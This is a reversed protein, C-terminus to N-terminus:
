VQTFSMGVSNSAVRCTPMSPPKSRRAAEEMGLPEVRRTAREVPSSSDPMALPPSVSVHELQPATGMLNAEQFVEIAPVDIVQEPAGVEETATPGQTLPEPLVRDSTSAVEPIDIPGPTPELIDVEVIGASKPADAAVEEIDVLCEM